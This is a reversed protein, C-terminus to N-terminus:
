RFEAIGAPPAANRRSWTAHRRAHRYIQSRTVRLGPVGHAEIARQWAVFEEVSLEYRRCVEELSIAGCSVANVIVAKRRPVWRKTDPPPLDVPITNVQRLVEDKSPDGQPMVNQAMLKTEWDHIHDLTEWENRAPM